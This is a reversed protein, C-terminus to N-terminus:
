VSSTLSYCALGGLTRLAHRYEYSQPPPSEVDSDGVILLMATHVQKIFNIPSSKAHVAPDYVSAGFHPILWEDIGNERVVPAAM